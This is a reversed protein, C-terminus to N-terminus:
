KNQFTVDVSYFNYKSSDFILDYKNTKLLINSVTKLYDSKSTNILRIYLLSQFTREEMFCLIFKNFVEWFLLYNNRDIIEELQENNNNLIKHNLLNYNSLFGMECLIFSLNLNDVIQEQQSLYKVGEEFLLVSFM